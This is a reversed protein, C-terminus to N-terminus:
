LKYKYREDALNENNVSQGDIDNTSISNFDTTNDAELDFHEEQGKAFDTVKMTENMTAESLFSYGANTRFSCTKNYV